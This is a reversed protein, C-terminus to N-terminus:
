VEADPMAIASPRTLLTSFIDALVPRDLLPVGFDM